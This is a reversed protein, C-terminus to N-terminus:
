LHWLVINPQYYSMEQGLKNLSAIHEFDHQHSIWDLWQCALSCYVRLRDPQVEGLNCVTCHISPEAHRFCVSCRKSNLTSESLRTTTEAPIKDIKVGKPLKSNLTILAYRLVTLQALVEDRKKLISIVDGFYMALNIYEISYLLEFCADIVPSVLNKGIKTKGVYKIRGDRKFAKVLSDWFQIKQSIEVTFKALEYSPMGNKYRTVNTWYDQDNGAKEVSQLLMNIITIMQAMDFSIDTM